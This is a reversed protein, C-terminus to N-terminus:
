LTLSVREKPTNIDLFNRRQFSFLRNKKQLTVIEAYENRASQNVDVTHSLNTAKFNQIM